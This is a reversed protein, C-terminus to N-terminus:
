ELLCVPWSQFSTLVTDRLTMIRGRSEHDISFYDCGGRLLAEAAFFM